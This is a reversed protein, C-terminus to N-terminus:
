NGLSIPRVPASHELMIFHLHSETVPRRYIKELAAAYLQLQSQYFATKEPIEERKFHNTKFDVLWIEKEVIVALDVVGQVIIFDDPSLNVRLDAGAVALEMTSFRATFALERQVFDRHKWIKQGISSQWFAAILPLDLEGAEIDTLLNELVMRGREAELGSLVVANELNLFQLFLHYIKGAEAASFISDKSKVKPERFKQFGFVQENNLDNEETPLRRLRSVSTKAAVDTADKHPYVWEMRERLKEALAPNTAISKDKQQNILPHQKVLREDTEHYTIIRWWPNATELNAARVEAINVAWLGLWDLFSKGSLLSLEDLPVPAGWKKDMQKQPITGVLILLDRARTFAVYLLRMEEGLMERKQRKQALRYPLSPYRRGGQPPKIKPCLGFAEDLIIEANLDRLNFPKGLDALVVVPFELGKSGHISMLTVSDDGEVSVARPETDAAKQAEIFHLFRFLGQRQFQDFQRALAVLRQVNARRQEGRPQVLLWDAYHTDDLVTQLCHALSSQRALRRWAGQHTLFRDVKKWAAHERATAHFHQVAAWYHTKRSHLRIVALEAASLGVLPSHLVAILPVDQLPNDLVQLLSLLDTIEISDYFGARAVTLPVELKAFERAFGDIKGSTSRLLIAMDKWKVPRMANLEKDWVPHGCKKLEWLRVAAMRAERAISELNALEEDAANVEGGSDDEEGPTEAGTICLHLEVPPEKEMAAGMPARSAAEGFRLQATADYGVSGMEERMLSGFVSNVFSLISERSRYNEVLPIVTGVPPQWARAYRQFIAPNALRFRYISQKVDGVLFRNAMVGEGSVAEIIADQAENIDQYEDVFVFRLQRRWEEAIASPLGTAGDWLLTLAHQELDHFDVAGTERKAESFKATFEKALNLLTRMSRRAWDWDQQLAPVEQENRLLSYFFLADDFLPELPPRLKTKQRNWRIESDAEQIQQLAAMWEAGTPNSKIEALIAALEKAKFNEAALSHLWKHWQEKWDALGAKLWQEWVLPKEGEFLALQKAIWGAADRLTQTYHHIRLILERIAKDGNPGANQILQQADTQAWPKGRM